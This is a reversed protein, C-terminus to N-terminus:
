IAALMSIHELFLLSDNILFLEEFLEHLISDTLFYAKQGGSLFCMCPFLILGLLSDKHKLVKGTCAIFICPWKRARGPM